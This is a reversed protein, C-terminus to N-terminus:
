INSLGVTKVKGQDNKTHNCYIHSLPIKLAIAEVFNRLQAIINQSLLKIGLAEKKAINECIVRDVNLIEKDFLNM